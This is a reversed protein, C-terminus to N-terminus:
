AQDAMLTSPPTKPTKSFTPTKNADGTPTASAAWQAQVNAGRLSASRMAVASRINAPRPSPASSSAASPDFEGVNMKIDSFRRQEPKSVIGAAALARRLKRRNVRIIVVIAVLAAVILCGMAIVFKSVIAGGIVDLPSASSVAPAQTVVVTGKVGHSSFSGAISPQTLAAAAAAADAAATAVFASLMASIQPASATAGDAQMAAAMAALNNIDALAAAIAAADATNNGVGTISLSVATGSQLLARRNGWVPRSSFAFTTGCPSPSAQKPLWSQLLARLLEAWGDKLSTTGFTFTSSVPLDHVQVTCSGASAGAAAAISDGCSDHDFTSHDVNNVSCGLTVGDRGKWWGDDDNNVKVTKGSKTCTAPPPSPSPPPPPPPAPATCSLGTVAVLSRGPVTAFVTQGDASIALGGIQNGLPAGCFASGATAYPTAGAGACVMTVCGPTAVVLTGDFSGAGM